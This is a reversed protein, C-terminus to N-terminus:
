QVKSMLFYKISLLINPTNPYLLVPVGSDLFSFDDESVDGACSPHYGASLFINDYKVILEKNLRNDILDSGSVILYKVGVDGAKKIVNDIDFGENVLHLHTDILM